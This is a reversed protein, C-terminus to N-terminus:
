QRTVISQVVTVASDVTPDSADSGLATIRFVELDFKAFQTNVNLTASSKANPLQEAVYWPSAANGYLAIHYVKHADTGGNVWGALLTFDRAGGGGSGCWQGSEVDEEIRCEGPSSTDLTRKEHVFENEVGRLGAEAKEFAIALRGASGAMSEQERVGQMVSLSVITILILMILGIILAAGRERSAGAGRTIFKGNM